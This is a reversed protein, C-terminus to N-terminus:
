VVTVTYTYLRKNALVCVNATGTAVSKFVISNPNSTNNVILVNKNDSFWYAGTPVNSLSYSGFANIGSITSNGSIARTGVVNISRTATNTGYTATVTVTGTAVGTLVGYENITALLSDSTTWTVGPNNV